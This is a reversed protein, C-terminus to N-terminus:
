PSIWQLKETLLLGIIPCHSVWRLGQQKLDSANYDSVAKSIAEQDYFEAKGLFGLKVLALRTYISNRDVVDWPTNETIGMSNYYDKLGLASFEQYKFNDLDYYAPKEHKITRLGNDFGLWDTSSRPSSVIDQFTSQSNYGITTEVNVTFKEPYDKTEVSLFAGAWDGPLDASATKTIVINDVLNAPFLDLKINNTFPDLTPIRSGNITSKVYRDGIGRVTIFGGFTSVGTIRSVAAIVNGDGTRKITEASIYDLSAV